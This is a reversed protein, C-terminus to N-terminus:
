QARKWVQHVQDGSKAAPSSYKLENATLSTITRKQDTGVQNPFTSADLHLSIVKVDENVTYTGYYADIRCYPRRGRFKDPEPWQVRNTFQRRERDHCFFSRERRLRQYGESRLWVTAAQQWGPASSGILRTDLHRCTARQAVKTSCPCRKSILRSGLVSTSHHDNRTYCTSEYHDEEPSNEFRKPRACGPDRVHPYAPATPVRSQLWSKRISTTGASPVTAALYLLRPSRYTATKQAARPCTM